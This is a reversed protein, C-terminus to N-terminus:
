LTKHQNKRTKLHKTKNRYIIIKKFKVIGLNQKNKNTKSQKAKQKWLM